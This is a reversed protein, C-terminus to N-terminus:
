QVAQWDTFRSNVPRQIFISSVDDVIQWRASSRFFDMKKKHLDHWHYAFGDPGDLSGSKMM